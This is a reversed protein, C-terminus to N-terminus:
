VADQQVHEAATEGCVSHRSEEAGTHHRVTGSGAQLVGDVVHHGGVRACSCGRGLAGVSQLPLSGEHCVQRLGKIGPGGARGAGDLGELGQLGLRLSNDLLLLLLLHAPFHRGWEKSCEKFVGQDLRLLLLLLHDPFHRACDKSCQRFVGQYLLLLLLLLLHAPLAPLQRACEKSCQHFVGQDFLLLLSLHASPCQSQQHTWQLHSGHQQHRHTSCDM